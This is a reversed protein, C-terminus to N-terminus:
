KENAAGVFLWSRQDSDFKWCLYGTNNNIKEVFDRIDPVLFDTKEM